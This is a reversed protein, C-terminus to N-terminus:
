RPSSSATIWIGHPRDKRGASSAPETKSRKATRPGIEAAPKLEATWRSVVGGRHCVMGQEGKVNKYSKYTPTTGIFCAHM